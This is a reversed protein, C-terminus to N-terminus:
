CVTRRAVASHAAHSKYTQQISEGLSVDFPDAHLNQLQEWLVRAFVACIQQDIQHKLRQAIGRLNQTRDDYRTGCQNGDQMLLPPQIDTHEVGLTGNVM